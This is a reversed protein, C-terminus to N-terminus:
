LDLWWNVSSCFVPFIHALIVSLYDAFDLSYSIGYFVHVSAKLLYMALLLFFQIFVHCYLIQRCRLLGLNSGQMPFIRQILSHCGVGTNKKKVKKKKKQNQWVNVHIWGPHVHTGLCSGGEWKGGWLMERLWWRAGAGLMINGTDSM